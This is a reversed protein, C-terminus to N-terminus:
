ITITIQGIMVVHISQMSIAWMLMWILDRVIQLGSFRCYCFDRTSRMRIDKIITTLWVLLKKITIKWTLAWELNNLNRFRLFSELKKVCILKYRRLFVKKMQLNRIFSVQLFMPITLNIIMLSCRLNLKWFQKRKGRKIRVSNANFTSSYTISSVNKSRIIKQRTHLILGNRQCSIVNKWISTFVHLVNDLVKQSVEIM